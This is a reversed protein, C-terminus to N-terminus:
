STATAPSACCRGTRFRLRRRGRRAPRLGDHRQDARAPLAPATAGTATGGASFNGAGNCVITDAPLAERLARRVPRPRARRRRAAAPESWELWEAHAERRRLLPHGRRGLQRSSPSSAWTPASRCTPATSAASSTRTPTSTSWSRAPHDPTILTYGDTTAEGLRAGVVLLLDADPGSSSSPIPATASIAPMSRAANAIADQRRFAAAVPIGIREAFAAFHHAAGPELRRRRRDRRARLRGEAPRDATAIAMPDAAPRCPAVAPRDVGRGRRAAHGRAACCWRARGAPWPSAGPAPSMNPSAGRMTSGRRGNPSRRLVHRSISKRSARATATAAAVDGVFLIMPTSDQFAVHVGVSANTAGPGRTVFAVGPRGTMKGDAEAM